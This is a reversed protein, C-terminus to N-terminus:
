PVYNPDKYFTSPLQDLVDLGLLGDAHLPGDTLAVVSFNKLTLAGADLQDIEYIPLTVMGNATQVNVIDRTRRAGLTRLKSLSIATKTAGTDLLMNLKTVNHSTTALIDAFIAGAERRMQLTTGFKTLQQDILDREAQTVGVLGTENFLRQAADLADERILWQILHWRHRDYSPELVILDEFFAKAQATNGLTKFGQNTIEVIRDISRRAEALESGSLSLSRIALLEAIAARTQGTSDLLEALQFRLQINSPETAIMTNLLEIADFFSNSQLLHSLRQYDPSAQQVAPTEDTSVLQKSPSKNGEAGVALKASAAEETPRELTTKRTGAYYALCLTLLWVLGITTARIL